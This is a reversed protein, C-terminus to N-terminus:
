CRRRHAARATRAPRARSAAPPARRTRTRASPARIVSAWGSRRHSRGRRARRRHSAARPQLSARTPSRVSLTRAWAHLMPIDGAPACSRFPVARRAFAPGPVCLPSLPPPPPATSASPVSATVCRRCKVARGIPHRASSALPAPSPGIQPPPPAPCCGSWTRESSISALPTQLPCMTGPAHRASTPRARAASVQLVPLCPCTMAAAAIARTAAPAAWMRCRAGAPTSTIAQACPCHTSLWPWFLTFAATPSNHAMASNCVATALTCVAGRFRCHDSQPCVLEAARTYPEFKCSSVEGATNGTFSCGQAHLTGSDLYIGGGQFRHLQSQFVLFGMGIEMPPSPSNRLPELLQPVRSVYTAENGSITCTILNVTPYMHPVGYM